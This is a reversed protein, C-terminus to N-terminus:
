SPALVALFHRAHRVYPCPGLRAHTEGPVWALSCRLPAFM